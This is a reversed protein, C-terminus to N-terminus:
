YLEKKASMIYDIALMLHHIAGAINDRVIANEEENPDTYGILEDNMAKLNWEIEELDM